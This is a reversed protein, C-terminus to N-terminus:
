AESVRILHLYELVGLTFNVGLLEAIGRKESITSNSVFASPYRGGFWWFTYGKRFDTYSGLGRKLRGKGYRTIM